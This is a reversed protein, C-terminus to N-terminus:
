NSTRRAPCKMPVPALAPAPMHRVSPPPPRPPTSRPPTHPRIAPLATPTRPRIAPARALTPPPIVPAARATPTPMPTSARTAVAARPAPQGSSPPTFATAWVHPTPRQRARLRLAPPPARARSYASWWPLQSHSAFSHWGLAMSGPDGRTSRPRPKRSKNPRERDLGGTASCATRAARSYAPLPIVRHTSM